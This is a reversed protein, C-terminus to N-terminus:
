IILNKELLSVVKNLCDDIGLKATDLELHIEEPKQYPFSLGPVNDTASNESSAYLGSPDRKICVEIPPNCYIM